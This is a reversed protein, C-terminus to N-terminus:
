SCVMRPWSITSLSVHVNNSDYVLLVTSIVLTASSLSMQLFVVVVRVMLGPNTRPRSDSVRSTWPHKGSALVCFQSWLPSQEAHHGFRVMRVTLYDHCRTQQYPSQRRLELSLPPETTDVRNRWNYFEFM